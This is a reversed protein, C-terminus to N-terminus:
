TKNVKILEQDFSRSAAIISHNMSIDKYAQNVKTASLNKDLYVLEMQQIASELNPEAWHQNRAFIYESEGVAIEDFDVLFSNQDNCFELNGSYGTVVVPKRLLMMEAINRGFGESRHLSVLSDVWRYLDHLNAKKLDESIIHVDEIGSAALAFSASASTHTDANSTKFVMGLEPHKAKLQKFCNLVAYPNKRYISSAFDFPFLFYFKNQDLGFAERGLGVSSAVEVPLKVKKIKSHFASPISDFVFQSHVWIEDFVELIFYLPEPWHPLEWPCSAINYSEELTTEDLSALLIAVDPAPLAFIQLWTKQNSHLRGNEFVQVDWDACELSKQILRADEGIGINLSPVGFLTLNKRAEKTSDVTRAPWAPPSKIEEELGMLLLWERLSQINLEFLRYNQVGIEICWQLYAERFLKGGKPKPFKEQLDPRSNWAVEFFYPIYPVTLSGTPVLTFLINEAENTLGFALPVSYMQSGWEFWWLIFQKVQASTKIGYAARLDSRWEYLLWLFNSLLPNEHAPPSRLITRINKNM